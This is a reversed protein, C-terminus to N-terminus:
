GLTKFLRSLMIEDDYYLESAGDLITQIKEKNWITGVDIVKLRSGEKVAIVYGKQRGNHFYEDPSMIRINKKLWLGHEIAYM